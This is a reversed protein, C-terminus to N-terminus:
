VERGLPTKTQAVKQTARGGRFRGLPTSQRPPIKFFFNPIATFFLECFFEKFFVSRRVITKPNESLVLFRTKINKRTPLALSAWGRIAGIADSGYIYPVNLCKIVIQISGLHEVIRTDNQVRCFVLMERHRVWFLRVDRMERVPRKDATSRDPTGYLMM